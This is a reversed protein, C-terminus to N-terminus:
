FDFSWLLLCGADPCVAKGASPGGEAGSSYVLIWGLSVKVLLRKMFVEQACWAGLEPSPVQQPVRAPFPPGAGPHCHNPAFPVPQPGVHGNITM